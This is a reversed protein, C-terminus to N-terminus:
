VSSYNHPFTLSLKRIRKGAVREVEGIHPAYGSEFLELFAATYLKERREPVSLLFVEQQGSAFREVLAFFKSKLAVQFKNKEKLWRSEYLNQLNDWSPVPKDNYTEDLLGVKETVTQENTFEM